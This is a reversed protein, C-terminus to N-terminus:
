SSCVPRAEAGSEPSVDGHCPLSMTQLCSFDWPQSEILCMSFFCLKDIPSPQM